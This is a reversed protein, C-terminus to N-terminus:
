PEKKIAAILRSLEERDSQDPDERCSLRKAMEVASPRKINDTESRAM